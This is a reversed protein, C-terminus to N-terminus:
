QSAPSGPEIAVLSSRAKRDRRESVRAIGRPGLVVHAWGVRQWLRRSRQGHHRIVTRAFFVYRCDIALRSERYCWDRRPWTVEYSVRWTMPDDTIQADLAQGLTYGLTAHMAHRFSLARASAPAPLALLGALAVGLPLARRM